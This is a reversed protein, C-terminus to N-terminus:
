VRFNWLDLSYRKYHGKYVWVKTNPDTQSVNCTSDGGLFNEKITKKWLISFKHNKVWKYNLLWLMCSYSLLWLMCSYNLLWLMCCFWCSVSHPLCTITYDSNVTRQICSVPFICQVHQLVIRGKYVTGLQVWSFLLFIPFYTFEISGKMM